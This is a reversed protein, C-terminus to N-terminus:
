RVCFHSNTLLNEAKLGAAVSVDFPQVIHTVHSPFIVVIVAHDKMFKIAAPNARSSNGDLYM